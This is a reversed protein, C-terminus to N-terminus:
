GNATLLIDAKLILTTKCVPLANGNLTWNSQQEWCNCTGLWMIFVVSIYKNGSLTIWENMERAYKNVIQQTSALM